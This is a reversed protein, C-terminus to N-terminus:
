REGRRPAAAAASSTGGPNRGRERSWRPSEHAVHERLALRVQRSVSRDGRDALKAVADALEPEVRAGICVLGQNERNAM